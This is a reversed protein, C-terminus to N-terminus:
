LDSVMVLQIGLITIIDNYIRPVWGLVQPDHYTSSTDKPLVSHDDSLHVCYPTASFDQANSNSRPHGMWNRGGLLHPMM